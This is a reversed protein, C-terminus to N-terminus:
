WAVQKVENPNGFVYGDQTQDFVFRLIRNDNGGQAHKM